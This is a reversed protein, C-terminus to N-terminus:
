LSLSFEEIQSAPLSNGESFYNDFEASGTKDKVETKLDDFRTKDGASLLIKEALLFNEVAGLIKATQINNGKRHFYESIGLISLAIDRKNLSNVNLKLCESFYEKAKEIENKKLGLNGLNVLSNSISFKDGSKRRISYCEEFLKEANEYDEKEMCLLGFNNIAQSLGERNGIERFLSISEKYFNESQEFEKQEFTLFGLNHLSAAIGNKDGIERRIELSEDLFTRGREYEGLFNAVSGLNSLLNAIYRRDGVDRFMSLSKEYNELAKSLNGETYSVTGLNNFSNAIGLNDGTETRIKLSEEFLKKAKGIEGKALAVTGLDNITNGIGYKNGTQRFKELSSNFLEEALDYEGKNFALQGSNSLSFSIGSINGLENNINLGYEIYEKAKEYDGQIRTFTGATNLAKAFATSKIDGSKEILSTLISRGESFNGLVQWFYGMASALRLGTEINSSEISYNLANDLNGKDENLKILAEQMKSGYLEPESKEAFETFYSLHKESFVSSENAEKLKEEGFQRITELMRYRDKEENFIIISKETLNDTLEIVDEPMILDDSCITEAEELTWGGSFVSLRNWLNKEQVSLLDYSWDIMAKLTQQRPLATRKGGTLLKFRDNMREQIKQVSLVKIRSAALEIALPIGDLQFCIKALSSANEENVRFNPNVSLAREIFLRVSEYQILQEVTIKKSPDPSELSLVRHTIEGSCRLAERSTAILKLKPIKKLLVEALKACSEIMHECNDLILMIQKDRLYDVLTEEMTRKAEEKINLVQAIAQPLLAPDVLSALEIYWVGNEFEDIIDAAVQLALRTKGSGGSGTLTTLHTQRLVGKIKRMEEERGIFSTLQVPLNNPRSDLTKLQPFDDRIRPSAIQYIRMPHILDKLRREGLDKFTIDNYVKEKTLEYTDGSIIIQDGYAASMIRQTRALTIYGMYDKGNWEATGTHIGMRVKVPSNLWIEAQLKIQIEVAAKIADYTNSFAVCFADGVTEFVFGFNSDIINQLIEHHRDMSIHYTEPFEQALRTSGEIDTFLFTVTGNPATIM